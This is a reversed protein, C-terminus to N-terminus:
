LCSKMKQLTIRIGQIRKASANQATSDRKLDSSVNNLEFELLRLQARDVELANMLSPISHLRSAEQYTQEIEILLYQLHGRAFKQTSRRQGVYEIFTESESALSASEALVSRVDKASAEHRGCALTCTLPVIALWARRKM